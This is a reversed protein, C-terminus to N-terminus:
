LNNIKSLLLEEIGFEKTGNLENYFETYGMEAADKDKLM